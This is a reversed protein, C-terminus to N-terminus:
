INMEIIQDTNIKVNYNKSAFSLFQPHGKLEINKAMCWELVKTCNHEIAKMYINRCICYNNSLYYDLLEINNNLIFWCSCKCDFGLIEEKTHRINRFGLKCLLKVTKTYNFNCAVQLLSECHGASSGYLEFDILLSILIPDLKSIVKCFQEDGDARDWSYQRCLEVIADHTGMIDNMIVREFKKYSDLEFKTLNDPDGYSILVQYMKATIESCRFSQVIKETIYSM